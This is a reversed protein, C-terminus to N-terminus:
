CLHHDLARSKNETRKRFCLDGTNKRKRKVTNNTIPVKKKRKVNKQGSANYRAPKPAM